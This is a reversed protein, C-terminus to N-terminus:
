NMSLDWKRSLEQLGNPLFPLNSILLIRSLIEQKNRVPLNQLPLDNIFDCRHFMGWAPSLVAHYTHGVRNNALCLHSDTNLVPFHM